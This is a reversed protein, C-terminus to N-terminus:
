LLWVYVVVSLLASNQVLMVPLEWYVKRNIFYLQLVGTIAFVWGLWNFGAYLAGGLYAFLALVGMIRQARPMGLMTCFNQIGAASDGEVDKLDIIHAGLSFVVLVVALPLAPISQLMPDWLSHGALFCAGSNIGIFIKAIACNEKFRLPPASYVFYSLGYLAMIVMPTFGAVWALLLSGITVYWAIQQYTDRPIDEKVLPRGAANIRDIEVDFINNHMVQAIWM